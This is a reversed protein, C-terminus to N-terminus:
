VKDVAQELAATKLEYKQHGNQIAEEKGASVTAIANKRVMM